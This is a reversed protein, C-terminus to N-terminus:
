RKSKSMIDKKYENWYRNMRKVVDDYEKNKIQNVTENPDEKYDYLERGKISQEDLNRNTWDVWITYRYREDRITYGMKNARPYQSVAYPKFEKGSSEGKVISSIVDGDLDEPVEIGALDCLTPYIDLFEVPATAIQPKENPDVIIMPVRTAQEFNSHKNWMGHDGLHWGHDGWLVIITNDREGSKDLAEVVEGILSDIYSVCAYYGHILERAKDEPMVLNDTKTFEAVASIDTYSMMEGSNHYAFSPTNESKTTFQALPMEDREYLDWYHKPACFPQHPKKFGVALFFPEDSNYNEIFDVAAMSTAGDGYANDPLDCAEVSPKLRQQAYQIVQSNKTIGKANAEAVLKEYEAKVIPDQYHHLVLKGSEADLYKDANIYDVSWSREDLKKDVSRPDYIKGVGAVMYGNQKFHQPLTVVDANCDRILTQLDWVRTRDPSWGTLLSARSAASVAQQCYAHTFTTGRSALADINPSKVVKDGYIGLLPKLDDVAIFLVNKPKSQAQMVIPTAIASLLTAAFLTSSRM